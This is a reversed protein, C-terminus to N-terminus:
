DADIAGRGRRIEVALCLGRGRGTVAVPCPDDAVREDLQIGGVGCPDTSAELADTAPAVCRRGGAGRLNGAAEPGVEEAPRHGLRWECSPRVFSRLPSVRATVSSRPSMWTTRM